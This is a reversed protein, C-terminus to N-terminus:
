VTMDLREGDRSGDRRTRGERGGGERWGDRGGEEREERGRVQLKRYDLFRHISAGGM